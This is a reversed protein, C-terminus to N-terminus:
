SIFTVEHEFIFCNDLIDLDFIWSACLSGLINACDIWPSTSIILLFEDDLTDHAAERYNNISLPSTAIFLSRVCKSKM